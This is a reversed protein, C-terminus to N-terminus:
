PEVEAMLDTLCGVHKSLCPSRRRSVLLRGRFALNNCAHTSKSLCPRLGHKEPAPTRVKPIPLLCCTPVVTRNRVTFDTLSCKSTRRLPGRCVVETDEPDGCHPGIVGAAPDRNCYQENKLYIIQPTDGTRHGKPTHTHPPTLSLPTGIFWLHLSFLSTTAARVGEGAWRSCSTGLEKDM